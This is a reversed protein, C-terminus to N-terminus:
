GREAQSWQGFAMALLVVVFSFLPAQGWAPFGEPLIAVLLPQVAGLGYAIYGGLGWALAWLGTRLKLFAPLDRRRDIWFGIGEALGMGALSLFLVSVGLEGEPLTGARGPPLATPAAVLTPTGPPEPSPTMTPSPTQTITPTPPVLTAITGPEDEGITVLVTTSRNAPDSVATIELQGGRELTVTTNAIGHVTDATQRPLELSEAPYSLIFTVLTGDPVPNGNRDLIISTHLNLKTGVEVDIPAPTAQDGGSFDGVSIQIVQDPDPATRDILNYNTGRISVPSAGQATFEQFLVRVSAEIFPETKSYVAYFATLKSMDTADLFYPADYGFVVIKHNRLSDSSEQLLLKIADSEPADQRNADLMALIIWDAQRILERLVPDQEDEPALIYEKLQRFSYSHLRSPVVQRTASPGYMRLIMQELAQPAIAPFPECDFCEQLPRSDTVILINEDSLPPSPLRDALEGPGPYVLTVADQALRSLLDQGQGLVAQAEGRSVLVEQLAFSPYLRQKLRLIRKLAEDVRTRFARDSEYRDRFFLVTSKINEFQEPWEDNLGFQSLILLDNGALFAELAIRRNPFTQLSPDYFKRIAPVGLADSVMLGKDRWTALEELSLIAQLAPADLSIPRTLQRINGQFGRYRIHSTMLADALALNDEGEGQQTVSFFPILEINRLENLSEQITAIEEDPRRDASGLGPFHKAVVAVRRDGGLHVGRIYGQGLKGTWFPDGGFTRAGMDGPQGPRPNTVVDLSPGLLMNAGLARLESGVIKGVEKAYLLSWTAGITMNSPLPSLGNRIRTYPYGNGEQDVAVFLPIHPSSESEQSRNYALLQLQNTLTIVQGPTDGDNRFNGNAPLLVVGGVRYDRVLQGIDSDLTADNGVFTVLFLQGVREEVSMQAILDDVTPTTTGQAHVSRIPLLAGALMLFALLLRCFTSTLRARHKNM